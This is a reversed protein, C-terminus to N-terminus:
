SRGHGAQRQEGPGTDRNHVRGVVRDHETRVRRGLDDRVDAGRNRLRQPEWELARREVLEHAARCADRDDDLQGAQRNGPRRDVRPLGGDLPRGVLEHARAHRALRLREEDRAPERLPRPGALRPQEDAGLEPPPEAPADDDVVDLIRLEDVEARDPVHRKPDVASEDVCVGDDDHGRGLRDHVAPGGREEASSAHIRQPCGARPRQELGRGRLAPLEPDRELPGEGRADRHHADRDHEVM